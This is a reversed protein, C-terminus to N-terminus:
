RQPNEEQIHWSRRAAPYIEGRKVRITKLTNARSILLDVTSGKPGIILKAITRTPFGEVSVGNVKLIKDGSQIGAEQAPSKDFVITVILHSNFKLGVFGDNVSVTQKETITKGLLFSCYTGMSSHPDKDVVANLYKFSQQKRGLRYLALALYYNATTDDPKDSVIKELAKASEELKGANYLSKAALLDASQEEASIRGSATFSLLLALLVPLWPVNNKM